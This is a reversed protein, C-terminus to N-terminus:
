RAEGEAAQAVPRAAVLARTASKLREIERADSGHSTFAVDGARDLVVTYPVGHLDLRKALSSEGDHYVPLTLGFRRVFRQVNRPELDISVALVRGGKQVIEGHLAELEPLERRCPICWSAWLNIVVVQGRLADLSTTRGDLMRLTQGRLAGRVRVADAGSDGGRATGALAILAAGAFLLARAARPMQEGAAFAAAPRFRRAHTMRRM